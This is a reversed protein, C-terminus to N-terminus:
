PIAKRISQETSWLKVIARAADEDVYLSDGNCLGIRWENTRVFLIITIHETAIFAQMDSITKSEIIM